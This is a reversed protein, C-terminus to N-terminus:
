SPAAQEAILRFAISHMVRGDEDSGVHVPGPTMASVGLYTTAGLTADRLGHCADYIEQVKAASSDGDHPESRAVIQVGERKLAGSGVGASTGIEPVPGGDESLVVLQDAHDHMVRRSSTWGTAGDVISQAALYTQLDAVAGM